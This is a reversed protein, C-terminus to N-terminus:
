IYTTRGTLELKDMGVSMLHISRPDYICFQFLGVTCEGLYGAKSNQSYTKSFFNLYSNCCTQVASVLM